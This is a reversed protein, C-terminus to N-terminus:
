LIFYVCLFVWCYSLHAVAQGCYVHASCLPSNHGKRPLAPDGALVINGSSLGVEVGLPMKIWGATQGCCVHASFQPSSGWKPPLLTGDLVIHGPGLGVETGLPMKICGATQGCCVHALFQPSHGKLPNPGWRTTTWGFHIKLFKQRCRKDIAPMWTLHTVWLVCLFTRTSAV